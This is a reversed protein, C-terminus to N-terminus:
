KGARGRLDTESAAGRHDREPPAHLGAWSPDGRAAAGAGEEQERRLRAHAIKLLQRWWETSPYGSPWRQKKNILELDMSRM